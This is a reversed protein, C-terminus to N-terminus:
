GVLYEIDVRDTHGPWSLTFQWCGPKPMDILSPGPGGAVSRSVVQGSGTLTAKITLKADPSDQGGSSEKAVWLIKNARGNGAPAHYPYGFLVAAIEGNDGVIHRTSSTGSFGRRAWAPLQGQEVAPHCTSHASPATQAHASETGKTSATCGSVLIALVVVSLVSCRGPSAPM